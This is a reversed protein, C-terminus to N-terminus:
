KKERGQGSLDVIGDREGDGILRIVMLGILFVVACAGFIAGFLILTSFLNMM